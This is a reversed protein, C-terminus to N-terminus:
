NIDNHDVKEFHGHYYGVHDWTVIVVATPHFTGLNVDPYLLFHKAVDEKARSLLNSENTQRFWVRGSGSSTTDVDAWFPSIVRFTEGHLATLSPLPFARSSFLSSPADFSLIGNTNIQM